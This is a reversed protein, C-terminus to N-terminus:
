TQRPTWWQELLFPTVERIRQFDSDASVITLGHRLATAAIWLDNDDFGLQRTTATRRRSRNRPGFRQVLGAKLEGYRETTEEDVFYIALSQLFTRVRELNAERQASNLAMFLLEGRVIFSTVLPVDGLEALRGLLQPDGELLRSCHNTDLLYM